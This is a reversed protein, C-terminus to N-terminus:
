FFVLFIILLLFHVCVFSWIIWWSVNLYALLEFCQVWHYREFYNLPVTCTRPEEYVYEKHIDIRLSMLTMTRKVVLIGFVRCDLLTTFQANEFKSAKLKLLVQLAELLKLSDDSTHQIHESIGGSSSEIILREDDLYGMM